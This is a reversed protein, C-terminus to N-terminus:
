QTTYWEKRAVDQDSIIYRKAQTLLKRHWSEFTQLQLIRSVRNMRILHMIDQEINLRKIALKFKKYHTM